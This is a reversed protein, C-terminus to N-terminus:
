SLVLKKTTLSKEANRMKARLWTMEAPFAPIWCLSTFGTASSKGLDLAQLGDMAQIEADMGFHRNLLM